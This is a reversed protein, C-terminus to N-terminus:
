MLRPPLSFELRGGGHGFDFVEFQSLTGKRIHFADSKVTGVLYAAIQSFDPEHGVLMVSQHAEYEQVANLVVAPQAGCALWHVIKMDVRLHESVLKATQHARRVPSTLILKPVVDHAECFRAIRQAQSVGRDSLPRDDDHAAVTDANAHRLLFLQM